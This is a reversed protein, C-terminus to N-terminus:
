LPSVFSSLTLEIHPPSPTVFPKMPFINASKDTWPSAQLPGTHRPKHLKDCKAPGLPALVPGSFALPLREPPVQHARRLLKSKVRPLLFALLSTALKYKLFTRRTASSPPPPVCSQWGLSPLPRLWSELLPPLPPAPTFLM